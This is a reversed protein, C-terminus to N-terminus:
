TLNVFTMIAPGVREDPAQQQCEWVLRPRIGLSATSASSRAAVHQSSAIVAQSSAICSYYMARVRSTCSGPSATRAIFGVPLSQRCSVDVSDIPM